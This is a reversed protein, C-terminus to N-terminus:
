KCWISELAEGVDLVCKGNSERALKVCFPKGAAGGSVLIIDAEHIVLDQLYRKHEGWSTLPLGSIKALGYKKRLTPVITAHNRHLVLVSGSRLVDGVRDTANWMTPYFQDIFQKRDPFIDHVRFNKLFLGSITCALFDADQGAELLDQGVKKLDAQWLGYRQLWANDRMFAEMPGGQAHRIMAREGDSMRIVSTSVRDKIRDILIAALADSSLIKNCFAKDQDDLKVTGLGTIKAVAPAPPQSPKVSQIQPLTSKDVTMPVFGTSLGAPRHITWNSWTKLKADALKIHGTRRHLPQLVWVKNNPLIWQNRGQLRVLPVRNRQAWVALDEDDGSHLEGTCMGPGLGVVKPRCAMAGCGLIHVAMDRPVARDYPYLTRHDRALINPPFAGRVRFIGGHMGVVAKGEYRDVGQVLYEVYGKPYHIDDDVTLYYGDDDGCWHFKGQSGKDPNPQGPGALAVVLKDSKPLGEPVETYGNLYLCMRDCQDLLDGVSKVLGELRPPFSAMAITIM